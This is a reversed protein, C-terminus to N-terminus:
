SLRRFVNMVKQLLSKDKEVVHRQPAFLGAASAVVHSLKQFERQLADPNYKTKAQSLATEIIKLKEKIISDDKPFLDIAQQYKNLLKTECLKYYESMSRMVNNKYSHKDKLQSKHFQELVKNIDVNATKIENLISDIYTLRAQHIAKERSEENQKAIKYTDMLKSQDIYNGLTIRFTQLQNLLTIKDIEFEKRNLFSTKATIRDILENIKRAIDNNLSQPTAYLDRLLWEDDATLEFQKKQKSTFIIMELEPLQPPAFVIKTPPGAVPDDEWVYHDREEKKDESLKIPIEEFIKINSNYYKLRNGSGSGITGFAGDLDNKEHIYDQPTLLGAQHLLDLEKIKQAYNQKLLKDINDSSVPSPNAHLFDIQPNEFKIPGRIGLLEFATRYRSRMVSEEKNM